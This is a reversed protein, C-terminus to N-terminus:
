HLVQHQGQSIIYLNLLWSSASHSFHVCAPVWLTGLCVWVYLQGNYIEAMFNKKGAGGSRSRLDKVHEKIMQVQCYHLSIATDLKVVYVTSVIVIYTIICIQNSMKTM